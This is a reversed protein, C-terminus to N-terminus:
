RSYGLKNLNLSILEYAAASLAESVGTDDLKMAGRALDLLIEPITKYEPYPPLSQM